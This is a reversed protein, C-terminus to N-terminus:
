SLISSLFGFLYEKLFGYFSISLYLVVKSTKQGFEENPAGTDLTFVVSFALDFSSEIITLFTCEM